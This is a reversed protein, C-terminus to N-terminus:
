PKYAGLHRSEDRLKALIGSLEESAHLSLDVCEIGIKHAETSFLRVFLWEAIEQGTSTLPARLSTALLGALAEAETAPMLYGKGAGYKHAKARACLERAHARYLAETAEKLLPPPRLAMFLGLPEGGKPFERTLEESAIEIMRLARIVPRPIYGGDFVYGLADYGLVDPPPPRRPATKASKKPLERPM